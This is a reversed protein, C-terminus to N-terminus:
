TRVAVGDGTAPLRPQGRAGRVILPLATATLTLSAVLIWAFDQEQPLVFACLLPENLFTAAIEALM